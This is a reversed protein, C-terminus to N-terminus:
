PTVPAPALYTNVDTNLSAACTGCTVTGVYRNFTQKDKLTTLLFPWIPPPLTHTEHTHLWGAVFMRCEKGGTESLEPANVDLLRIAQSSRIFMGHDVLFRATDGDVVREVSAQYNWIM